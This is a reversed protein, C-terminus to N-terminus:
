IVEHCMGCGTTKGPIHRVCLYDQGEMHQHDERLPGVTPTYPNSVPGAGSGCSVFFMMTFIILALKLTRM